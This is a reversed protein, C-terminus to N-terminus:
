IEALRRPQSYRHIGDDLCGKMEQAADRRRPHNRRRHRRDVILRRVHHIQARFEAFLPFTKEGFEFPGVPWFRQAASPEPTTHAPEEAATRPSTLQSFSKANGMATAAYMAGFAISAIMSVRATLRSHAKEYSRSRSDYVSWFETRRSIDAGARALFVLCVYM